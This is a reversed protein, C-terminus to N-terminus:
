VWYVAVLRAILLTVLLAVSMSSATVRGAAESAEFAFEFIILPAIPLFGGPLHIVDAEMEQRHWRDSLRQCSSYVELSGAGGGRM